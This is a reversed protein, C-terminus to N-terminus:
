VKSLGALNRASLRLGTGSGNEVPQASDTSSQTTDGQPSAMGLKVMTRDRTMKSIMICRGPRRTPRELWNPRDPSKQRPKESSRKQPKIPLPNVRGWWTSKKTAMPTPNRRRSTSQIQQPQVVSGNHNAKDRSPDSEAEGSTNSGHRLQAETVLSVRALTPPIHDTGSGIVERSESEHMSLDGFKDVIFLLSGLIWSSGPLFKSSSQFVMSRM